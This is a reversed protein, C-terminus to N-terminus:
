NRRRLLLAMGFAAIVLLAVGPGPSQGAGDQSNAPAYPGLGGAEGLYAQRGDTAGPGAAAAQDISYSAQTTRMPVPVGMAPQAEGGKSSYSADGSAYAYCCYGYSKEGPTAFLDLRKTEGSKIETNQAVDFYGQSSVRVTYYGGHVTIKYSGDEDTAASGYDRTLENYFSVQAGPVGKKSTDNVVYGQFVADPLPRPLLKFQIEEAQNAAGVITVVRPMYERDREGSECPSPYPEPARISTGDSSGGEAACPAYYWAYASATVITYGPKTWFEFQGDQDTQTSNYHGWKQNELSLQAYSIPKGTEADAVRGFVRVSDAPIKELAFNLTKKEGSRAEVAQQKQIHESAYATVLVRGPTTRLEYKGDKGVATSNYPSVAPEYYFYVDGSQKSTSDYAPMPYACATNPDSTECRYDPQVNVWADSLPAGDASTVTGSILISQTSSKVMPLDLVRDARHEFNAHLVDFGDKRAVLNVSGESLTVSYSGDAASRVTQRQEANSPPSYAYGERPYYYNWIEILVDALAAGSSDDKVVGKLNIPQGYVQQDPSRLLFSQQIRVDTGGVQIPVFAAVLGAANATANYRGAAINSFSYKGNADTAATQPTGGGSPVITVSADALAAATNDYVYGEITYLTGPINQAQAVPAPIAALTLTALLLVVAFKPARRGLSVTTNM